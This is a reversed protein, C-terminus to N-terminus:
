RRDRQDVAQAIGVQQHQQLVVAVREVAAFGPLAQRQVPNQGAHSAVICLGRQHEVVGEDVRHARYQAVGTEVGRELVFHQRRRAFGVHGLLQRDDVRLANVRHAVRHERLQCARQVGVPFPGVLFVLHAAGIRGVRNRGALTRQGVARQHHQAQARRRAAVRHPRAAGQLTELVGAVHGVAESSEARQHIRVRCQSFARQLLEVRHEAAFREHDVGPEGQLRARRFQVAAHECAGFLQELVGVERDAVRVPRAAQDARQAGVIRRGKVAGVRGAVHEPGVAHDLEVRGVRLEGRAHRAVGVAPALEGLRVSACCAFRDRPDRGFRAQRGVHVLDDRM